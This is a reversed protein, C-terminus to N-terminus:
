HAQRKVDQPLQGDIELENALGLRGPDPGAPPMVSWPTKGTLKWRLVIAFIAPGEILYRRWLRKPESLLRHLWELGARQLWTPARKKEGTLFEISAGICLATGSARARARLQSAIIESQPAGVALFIFHARSQEVFEVVDGQAKKNTSLGMPPIHQVFDPNPHHLRLRALTSENGGVIAVRDGSGIVSGLLRATLDSGPIVTLRYGSLRALLAVIRSDCLRMGANKYAEGLPGGSGENALRVIHDVNPTVVYGLPADRAAVLASIVESATLGSLGLNLFQAHGANRRIPM